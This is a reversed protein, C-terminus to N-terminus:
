GFFARLDVSLRAPFELPLWHTAKEYVHVRAAGLRRALDEAVAPPAFPDREGAVVMVPAGIDGLLEVPSDGAVAEFTALLTRLDCGAMGRLLEVLAPTDASAAIMGSQRILGVIQPRGVLTRFPAELSQAFHKAVGAVIPFAATVDLNRVLRQWSPGVTACVLALASVREPYRHAIELAIRGGNSWSAVVAREIDLHDLAAIADEAQVGPGFRSDVPHESGHLGRHDWSVVRRERELDIVVARWAVFSAGVPNVLLLPTKPGEGRSRVALRSGDFSEALQAEGSQM